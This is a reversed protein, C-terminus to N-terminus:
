CILNGKTKTASKLLQWNNNDGFNGLTMVETESLGISTVINGNVVWENTETIYKVETLIEGRFINDM